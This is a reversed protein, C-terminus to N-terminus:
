DVSESNIFCLGTVLLPALFKKLLRVSTQAAIEDVLVFRPRNKFLGASLVLFDVYLICEKIRFLYDGGDMVPSSNGSSTSILRNSAALHRRRIIILRPFENICPPICFM